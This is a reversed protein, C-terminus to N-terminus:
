ATVVEYSCVDAWTAVLRVAERPVIQTTVAYSGDRQQWARVQYSGDTLRWLAGIPSEAPNNRPRGDYAGVRYAHGICKARNRRLGSRDIM